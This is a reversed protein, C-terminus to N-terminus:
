WTVFFGVMLCIAIIYTGVKGFIGVLAFTIWNGLIGGGNGEIGNTYSLAVGDSSFLAMDKFKLTESIVDYSLTTITLLVSLFLFISAFMYKVRVDELNHNIQVFVIVFFLYPIIYGANAFLGFILKKSFM